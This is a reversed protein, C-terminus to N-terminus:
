PGPPAAPDLCVHPFLAHLRRDFTLLPVGEREALAVFLTDYASHRHLAALELARRWMFYAPVTFTVAAYIADLWLLCAAETARNGRVEMSLVHTAEAYVFDVTGVVPFKKLAAIAAAGHLPNKTVAYILLNTDAVADTM